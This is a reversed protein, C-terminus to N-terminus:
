YRSNLPFSELSEYNWKTECESECFNWASEYFCVFTWKTESLSMFVYLIGSQGVSLSVFIYLIGSLSVLVYLIGSQRVGLSVFVYLIGSQRM